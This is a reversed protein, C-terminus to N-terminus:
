GKFHNLETFFSTTCFRRIEAALSQYNEAIKAAM